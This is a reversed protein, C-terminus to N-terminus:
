ELTVNIARNPLSANIARNPLSAIINWKNIIRFYSFAEASAISVPLLNLGMIVTGFYESSAITQMLLEFDLRATGFSEATAISTPVIAFDSFVWGNNAGGNTSHSGAYWKNTDTVTMGTPLLYDWGAWQGTPLKWTGGTLAVVTTGAPPILLQSLTQTTGTAIVTKGAQSRDVMLLAITNNDTITLSYAASGALTVKNYTQNGGVFTSATTTAYNYLITSTQCNFTLGPDTFGAGFGVWGDAGITWTGSGMNITKTGGQLIFGGWWNHGNMELTGSKVIWDLAGSVHDDQVSIKGGPAHLYFVYWYKENQTVTYNGRGRFYESYNGSVNGSGAHTLSGYISVDFPKIIGISTTITINKGLRPMDWTIAQGAGSIAVDDQPLPIRGSWKAATSQNGTTGNWTQPAATPFTIGTNGGCDGILGASLDVPNTATIDMLDCFQTGTWNAATITAPSGLTSTQALLRNIASNGILACTGTCTIHEGSTFAVSDTKTATGNRTLNACTFDGSVTHATGNLNFTTGNYNVNGATLAGTGTINITVTNPTLTLNTGTYGYNGAINFVSSGPTLTKVGTGAITFNLCTITKNNTNVVSPVGADYTFSKITTLDVDDAFTINTATDSIAIPHPFQKAFTVTGAGLLQMMFYSPTHTMGTIFTPSGYVNLTGSITLTPTNTAGTWDMNLCYSTIDVTYTSSLPINHWLMSDAATPVSAGGAGGQTAAWNAIDSWIVGKWYRNAM